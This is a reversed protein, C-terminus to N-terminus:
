LNKKQQFESAYFLFPWTKESVSIKSFKCCSNSRKVGNKGSINTVLVGKISKMGVKFNSTNVLQVLFQVVISLM